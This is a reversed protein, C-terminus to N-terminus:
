SVVGTSSNPINAPLRQSGTANDTPNLCVIQEACSRDKQYRSQKIRAIIIRRLFNSCCRLQQLCKEKHDFVLIQLYHRQHEVISDLSKRSEERSSNNLFSRILCCDRPTKRVGNKKLIARWTTRKAGGQHETTQM